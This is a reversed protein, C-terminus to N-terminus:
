LEESEDRIDEENYLKLQVGAERFMRKTLRVSGAWRKLYEATPALCVVRRIGAQIILGACRCCPLTTVYLSCMSASERDLRAALIVNAEAHVVIDNKLPRNELRKRSCDVGDPFRNCDSAIMHVRGRLKALVAGVKTTPDKSCTAASCALRLNRCDITKQNKKAAM